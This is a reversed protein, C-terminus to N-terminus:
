CVLLFDRSQMWEVEQEEEVWIGSRVGWQVCQMVWWVVEGKRRAITDRITDGSADVIVGLFPPTQVPRTLAGPQDCDVQIESTGTAITTSMSPTQMHQQFQQQERPTQATRILASPQAFDVELESMDTATTTPMSLTQMHQQTQQPKRSYVDLAAQGKTKADQLDKGDRAVALNLAEIRQHTGRTRQTVSVRIVAVAKNYEQKLRDLRQEADHEDWHLDVTLTRV